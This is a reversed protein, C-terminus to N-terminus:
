CTCPWGWSDAAEGGRGEVQEPPLLVAKMNLLVVVLHHHRHRHLPLRAGRAASGKVEEELRLLRRTLFTPPDHWLQRQAEQAPCLLASHSGPLMLRAHM